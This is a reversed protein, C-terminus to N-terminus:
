LVMHMTYLWDTALYYLATLSLQCKSSLDSWRPDSTKDSFEVGDSRGSHPVLTVHVRSQGTSSAPHIQSHTSQTISPTQIPFTPRKDRSIM